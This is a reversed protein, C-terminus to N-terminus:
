YINQLHALIYKCDSYLISNFQISNFIKLILGCANSMILANLRGSIGYGRFGSNIKRQKSMPFILKSSTEIQKGICQASLFLSLFLLVM